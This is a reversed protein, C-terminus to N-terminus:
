NSLNRERLVEKLAKYQEPKHFVKYILFLPILTFLGVTNKWISFLIVGVMFGILVAHVISASKMKKAQTILEQDSLRSLEDKTMVGFNDLEVM